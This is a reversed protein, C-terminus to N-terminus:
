AEISAQASVASATFVSLSPNSPTMCAFARAGTSRRTSGRCSARFRRISAVWSSVVLRRSAFRPAIAAHPRSQTMRSRSSSPESLSAITRCVAARTVGATRALEAATMGTSSRGLYYLCMLDAGRLGLRECEVARIRQIEKETSSILRVFEQFREGDTNKEAM